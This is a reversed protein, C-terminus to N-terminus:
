GNLYKEWLSQWDITDKVPIETYSKGDGDFRLLMLGMSEIDIQIQRLIEQHQRNAEETDKNVQEQAVARRSEIPKFHWSTIEEESLRILKIEPM